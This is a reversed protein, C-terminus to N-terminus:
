VNPRTLICVVKRVQEIIIRVYYLTSRRCLSLLYEISPDLSYVRRVDNGSGREGFPEVM